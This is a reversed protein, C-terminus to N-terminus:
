ECLVVLHLQPPVGVRLPLRSAGIGNSVITRVGDIACEGSIWRHSRCEFLASFPTVGLVNFQGGHTHGSLQLDAKPTGGYDQAVPYHSLLVRFAPERASFLGRASPNGHKWDDVGGIALAGAGFEVLAAENVLLRMHRSVDEAFDAIESDNNGLCAYIGLHPELVRMARLLRRLSEYDEALDGGILVIDPWLASVRAFFARLAEDSFRRNAHIDSFFAMRIGALPAYAASHRM